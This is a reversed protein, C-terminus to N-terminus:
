APKSERKRRVALALSSRGAVPSRIGVRVEATGTAKVFVYCFRRKLATCERLRSWSDRRGM